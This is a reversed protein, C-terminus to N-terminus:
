EEEVAFPTFHYVMGNRVTLKLGDNGEEELTVVLKQDSSESPLTGHLTDGQQPIYWGYNEGNLMLGVYYGSYEETASAMVFLLNDNKDTYYGERTWSFDSGLIANVAACGSLLCVLSVLCLLCLLTKKLLMGGFRSDRFFEIM